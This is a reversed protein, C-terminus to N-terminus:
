LWGINGISVEKPVGGTVIIVGTKRVMQIQEEKLGHVLEEYKVRPIM